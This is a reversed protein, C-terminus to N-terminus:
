IGFYEGEVVLYWECSKGDSGNDDFYDEGNYSFSTVIEGLEDVDLIDFQLKRVDFEEDDPLEIEAGWGGKFTHHYAVGCEWVTEDDIFKCGPEECRLIYRPCVEEEDSDEVNRLDSYSGTWIAEEENNELVKSVGFTQDTYAGFGLCGDEVEYRHPFDDEGDKVDDDDRHLREAIADTDLDDLDEPVWRDTQEPTLPYYGIEGLYSRNWSHEGGVWVNYKTMFVFIGGEAYGPTTFTFEFDSLTAALSFRKLSCLTRM